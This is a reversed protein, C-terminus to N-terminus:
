VLKLFHWRAFAGANPLNTSEGVCGFSKLLSINKASLLIITDFVQSKQPFESISGKPLHAWTASSTSAGSEFDPERQSHSNSEGGPCSAAPASANSSLDM